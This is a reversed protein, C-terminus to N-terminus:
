FDYVKQSNYVIIMMNSLSLIKDFKSRGFLDIM